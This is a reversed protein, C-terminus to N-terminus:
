AVEGKKYLHANAKRFEKESIDNMRKWEADSYIYHGANEVLIGAQEKLEYLKARYIKRTQEREKVLDFRKDKLNIEIMQNLGLIADHYTSINHAYNFVKGSHWNPNHYAVVEEYHHICTKM